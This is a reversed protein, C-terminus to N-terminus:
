FSRFIVWNRGALCLNNFSSYTAEELSVFTEQILEFNASASGFLGIAVVLSAGNIKMKLHYVM